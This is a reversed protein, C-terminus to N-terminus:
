EGGKPHSLSYTAVALFLSTDAVRYSQTLEGGQPHSLSYTAVALFM